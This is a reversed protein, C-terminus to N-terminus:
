VASAQGTRSIRAIASGQGAEGLTHAGLVIAAKIQGGDHLAQIGRGLIFAQRVVDHGASRQVEARLVGALVSISLEDSAPSSRRWRHRANPPWCAAACM